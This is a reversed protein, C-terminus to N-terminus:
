LVPETEKWARISEAIDPMAHGLRKALLSSDLAMNRPREAMLLKDAVLIPAIGATPLGYAAAVRYAFECKSIAESGGAHFLGAVDKDMCSEIVRALLVTAIPSFLVDTFMTLPAGSRLAGLVWEGFSDHRVPRWGFINTRLVLGRGCALARGEGELKTVGYLNLPATVDSELYPGIKRGNFVADTSVYILQAGRRECYAALEETAGVHLARTAAQDRECADVNTIAASHIVVDPAESNLVASITQYELLDAQVWRCNKPGSKSRFLAVCDHANSLSRILDAGLMGTAGTVLVRQRDAM